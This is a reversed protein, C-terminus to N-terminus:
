KNIDLKVKYNLYKRKTIQKIRFNVLKIDCM